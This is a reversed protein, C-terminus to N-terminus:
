IMSFDLFELHVALYIFLYSSEEVSIALMDGTRQLDGM